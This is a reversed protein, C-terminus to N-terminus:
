PTSSSGSWRTSSSPTRTRWPRGTRSSTAGTARTACSPGGGSTPSPSTSPTGPGPRTATGARSPSRCTPCSCGASTPTRSRRPGGAPPRRADAAEHAGGPRRPPEVSGSPPVRPVARPRRRRRRDPRRASRGAHHQLARQGGPARELRRRRDRQLGDASAVLGTLHRRARDLDSRVRGAYRVPDEVGRRVTALAAADLDTDIVIDWSVSEGAELSVHGSLVLAAREGRVMARGPVGRGSRRAGDVRLM